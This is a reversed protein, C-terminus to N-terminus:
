NEEISGIALRKLLRYFNSRNIGLERAVAAQNNQHVQLRQQILQKQYQETAQKLTVGPAINAISSQNLGSTLPLQSQEALTNDLIDQESIDLHNPMINVVRSEKGHSNIAKLAARSLLHELERVNGPWAYHCIVQRAGASLRLGQVGFRRQNKELLYGAILLVDNGRERLPPVILPYVSLRHYLDARFREKRVEHKLDRNTAAIIRVDVEIHQDSGVRQIEGSQLARLIKAQVALSLEGIEDLFLTGGNAIEFKGLRNHEAGTFAGKKHGFLESEALNEPLAACNVYVLPQDHRASRSHIKRAVLEKGVGTEGLILVTLHSRAVIDIESLMLNLSQSNGIIETKGEDVLQSQAVEIERDVRAQLAEIRHAAKVTAETLGIFTRLQQQEIQDFTGPVAADLTLVGWPQDDQYLSIGMCDHVHLSQQHNDLLGDYPDALDSDAPFRVPERSLLITALRPHEDVMFRRGLTDRSLGNVAIPRLARGEIKLLAAADCPFIQKMVSLLRQYRVQASLDQSLDAVIAILALSFDNSTTM